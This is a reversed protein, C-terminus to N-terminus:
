VEETMALLKLVTNWNRGTGKGTLIKDIAGMIKSKGQGEPFFIYLETGLLKLVEGNTKIEQLKEDAGPAPQDPLFMVLLKSPAEVAEQPFPNAQVADRMEDASRIVVGPRFGFGREILEEVKAMLEPVKRKPSTFVVNGSQIYTRVDKFGAEEFAARLPEMKMVQNGGLNVGRLLAVYTPM